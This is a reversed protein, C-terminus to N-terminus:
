RETAFFQERLTRHIWRGFQPQEKVAEVILKSDDERVRLKEFRFRAVLHIARAGRLHDRAGEIRHARHRLNTAARHGRRLGITPSCFHLVVMLINVCRCWMEDVTQRIQGGGVAGMTGGHTLEAM